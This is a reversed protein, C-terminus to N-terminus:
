RGRRTTSSLQPTALRTPSRHSSTLLVTLTRPLAGGVDTVQTLDGSSNYSYQTTLGAPDTVKALLGSSNYTFSITRGAPDTVTTLQNSSNYALATTYGNLDSESVLQGTPNFTFIETGGRTFLWDGNSEYCLTAQVREATTWGCSGSTTQVFSVVSGNEQEVDVVQPGTTSVTFLSM